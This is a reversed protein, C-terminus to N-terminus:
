PISAVFIGLRIRGGAEAFERVRKAAHHKGEESLRPIDAIV